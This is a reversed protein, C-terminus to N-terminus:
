QDLLADRTGVQLVRPNSGPTEARVIARVPWADLGKELARHTALFSDPSEDVPLPESPADAPSPSPSVDPTPVTTRQRLQQALVLRETREDALWVGLGVALVTLCATLAPWGFRAPSPRVSARGAAFLVADCDLGASAPEWASLRHELESLDDAHHSHMDMTRRAERAISGTGDPLSPAGDAALLRRGPRNGRIDLRGVLPRRDSGAAGAAVRHAPAHGRGRGPSGRDASFWAETASAKQERQRRRAASRHAALAENRVVRYLWPLVQEPPPTQRALRVFADQVIDEASGGWQRAYLLLAAAHQRYVRGLVTPEMPTM